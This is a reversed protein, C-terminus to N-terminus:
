ILDQKYWGAHIVVSLLHTTSILILASYWVQNSRLSATSKNLILADIKKGLLTQYTMM